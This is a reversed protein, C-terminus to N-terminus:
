FGMDTSKNRPSPARQPAANQASKVAHGPLVTGHSHPAAPAEAAATVAPQTSAPTVATVQPVPEPAIPVIPTIPAVKAASIVGSSTPLATESSPQTAKSRGLLFVGGILFSILVGLGIFLPLRSSTPISLEPDLTRASLALEGNLLKPDTTLVQTVGKAFEGSDSPTTRPVGHAVPPAHGRLTDIKVEPLAQRNLAGTSVGLALELAEVMEDASHYRQNADRACARQYWEAVSNPIWPAAARLDPLPGTCIAVLVDAFSDGNFAFTGTMMNYFVMGLSYLDSRSDVSSAGRVQEPSMFLPTGLLTGTKTTSAIGHEELKAIGFDLVKAVWGLEDDDSRTLFVNGPKLDRHVIGQAHARSLARAVHRTIRVADNLPLDHERDMRQELTEGDLYELVIYPTGAPTEGDDYVQVVYRSRLRAAAKAETSFRTRAEPAQAHEAAILKIAVRQGLTLHVASWVTGMAGRGIEKELRYKGGLVEGERVTNPLGKSLGVTESMAHVCSRWPGRGRATERIKRRREGSHSREGTGWGSGRFELLIRLGLEVQVPIGFAGGGNIKGM